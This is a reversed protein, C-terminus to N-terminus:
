GKRLRLLSLDGLCAAQPLAPVGTPFQVRVWGSTRPALWDPRAGDDTAVGVLIARVPAANLPSSPEFWCSYEDGVFHQRSSPSARFVRETEDTPGFPAATAPSITLAKRTLEEDTWVPAQAELLTMAFRYLEGLETLRQEVQEPSPHNM